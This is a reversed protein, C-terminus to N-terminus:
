TYRATAELPNPAIFRSVKAFGLLPKLLRKDQMEMIQLIVNMDIGMEICSIAYTNRLARITVPKNLQAEQGAKLLAQEISRLTCVGNGGKGEFLYEDPLVQDIYSKLQAFAIDGLRVLRKEGNDYHLQVTKREFDIDKIRIRLITCAKCGMAYLLAVFLSAKANRSKNLVQFVDKRDLFTCQGDRSAPRVLHQVKEIQGACYTYYFRICSIANNLVAASAGEDALSQIYAMIVQSDAESPHVPSLYTLYKKFELAYSKISAASYKSRELTQKFQNLCSLQIPSM